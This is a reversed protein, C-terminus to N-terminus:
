LLDKIARLMESHHQKTSNTQILQIAENSDM